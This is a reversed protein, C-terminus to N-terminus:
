KTKLFDLGLGVFLVAAAALGWKWGSVGKVYGWMGYMM